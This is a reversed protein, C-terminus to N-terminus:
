VWINKLLLHDNNEGIEFISSRDLNRQMECFGIKQQMSKTSWKFSKLSKREYRRVQVSTIANSKLKYDKLAQINISSTLNDVMGTVNLEM